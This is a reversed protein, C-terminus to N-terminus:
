EYRLTQHERVTKGQLMDLDESKLHCEAGFLIFGAEQRTYFNKQKDVFGETFNERDPYGEERASKYAWGHRKATFIKGSKHKIAATLENYKM